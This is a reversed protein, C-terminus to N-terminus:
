GFVLDSRLVWKTGKIVKRGEHLLCDNMGHRHLLGLGREIDVVVDDEGDRYFVTEGGVVGDERGTLYVLLTWYSVFGSGGDRSSVDYHPGFLTNEPYKYVRINSSLGKM